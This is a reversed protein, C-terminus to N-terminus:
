RGINAVTPLTIVNSPAETGTRWYVVRGDSTVGEQVLGMAVLEALKEETIAGYGLAAVSNDDITLNGFQAGGGGEKSTDNNSEAPTKNLSPVYVGGSGSGSGSVNSKKKQWELEDEALQMEREAMKQEWEDNEKARNLEENFQRISENFEAEQLGYTKEFREAEAKQANETNILGYIDMLQSHYMSDIELQKNTKDILLQNKYQFGQLSVELSTQLANYAIEALAANGQLRAEKIMNDYNQIARVFAERATAVRNQYQNYMNVQSTESYGSNQLGAAATKEANTGYANSQKQWDVYAASQEKKYDQEAWEKEQEIKEVTFDTLRQQNASQKSAYGQAADIMSKFYSDSNNIASDYAKDTKIQADHQQVQVAAVREDDMYDNTKTDAM